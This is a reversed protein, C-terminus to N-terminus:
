SDTPEPAVPRPHTTVTAQAGHDPEGDPLAATSVKLTEPVGVVKEDNGEDAPLEVAHKLGINGLSFRIRSAKLAGPVDDADKPFVLELEAAEDQEVFTEEELNASTIADSDGSDYVM